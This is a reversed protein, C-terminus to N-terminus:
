RRREKVLVPREERLRLVAEDYQRLAQRTELGTYADVTTQLSRHGLVRRVTEYQGPYDDLIIQAALHRALHPHFVLGTLRRVTRSLQAGLADPRKCEGPRGPFLWPSPHDLLLPRYITLYWDILRFVSVPLEAELDVRNKVEAAPIVLLGTAEPGRSARILHREIDLSALNTMRLPVRFLIELAVALMMQVAATRDPPSRRKADDFLRQPLALLSHLNRPDQFQVLRRRNKPRLGAEQPDLRRRMAKLAELRESDVRVWHRAIQLLLQALNLIQGTKQDGSRALFFGLIMRTTQTDAVLCALGTVTDVARGQRVLATALQLLQTRRFRLTAPRLAPREDADLPGGGALHALYAEVDRRFSAPFADLPLAYVRSHVPVVLRRQPWGPVTEVAANWSQCMTKHLSAPRAAAGEADLHQRFHEGVADDVQEPRIGAASCFRAFRSLDWRVPRDEIAALLDAWVPDLPTAARLPVVAVGAVKLAYDVLSRVNGLRAESLGVAVPSLQKLRPRLMAPLALVEDPTTGLARCATRLASLLDDRRRQTLAADAAVRAMVEALTPVRLAPNDAL